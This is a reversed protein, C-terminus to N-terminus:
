RWQTHIQIVIAIMDKEKKLWMEKLEKFMIIIAINFEKSLRGDTARM